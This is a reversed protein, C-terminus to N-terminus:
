QRKVYMHNQKRLGHTDFTEVGGDAFAGLETTAALLAGQDQHGDHDQEQGAVGIPQGELDVLAGVGGGVGVLTEVVAVM